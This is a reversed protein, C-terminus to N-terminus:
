TAPYFMAGPLYARPLDFGAPLARGTALHDPLLHTHPGAPSVGGPPPIPTGVEIRGLATEIVRWPSEALLAPGIGPLSEPFSVGLSQRLAEQARGPGVRVCFRAEKRGLGLDFLREGQKEPAIAGRDPGLETLVPACDPRGRERKVALVIRSRALPVDNREFTLARVDDNIVFRLAAGQTRAIVSEGSLAVEVDAGAVPTFEAVAGVVGAVWTGAGRRLRDVLFSRIDGADWPLRRCTVGLNEFRDPLAAWVAARHAGPVSGWGAIEDGTRACGLCYGTADDLKCLGVCPSVDTM